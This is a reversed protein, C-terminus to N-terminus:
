ASASMNVTVYDLSGFTKFYDRITSIYLVYVYTIQATTFNLENAKLINNEVIGNLNDIMGKMITDHNNVVTSSRKNSLTYTIMQHLEICNYVAVIVLSAILIVNLPKM